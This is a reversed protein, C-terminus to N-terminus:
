GEMKIKSSEDTQARKVVQYIEYGSVKAFQRSLQKEFAKSSVVKKLDADAKLIKSPSVGSEYAHEVVQYLNTVAILEETSWGSDLPYAYNGGAM